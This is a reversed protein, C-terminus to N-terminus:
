LNSIFQLIFCVGFVNFQNKYDRMLCQTSRAKCRPSGCPTSASGWSPPGRRTSSRESSGMGSISKKTLGKTMLFTFSLCVSFIIQNQHKEM